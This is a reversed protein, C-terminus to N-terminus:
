SKNPASGFAPMLSDSILVFSRAGGKGMIVGRLFFGGRAVIAGGACKLHLRSFFRVSGFM